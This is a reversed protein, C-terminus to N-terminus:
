ADRLAAAVDRQIDALTSEPLGAEQLLKKQKHHSQYQFNQQGTRSNNSSIMRGLLEPDAKMVALRLAVAEIASKSKLGSSVLAQAIDKTSVDKLRDLVHDPIREFFEKALTYRESGGTETWNDRIDWSDPSQGSTTEALAYGNDIAHVRLNEATKPGNPDIWSFGMNGYHRDQHGMLADLVLQRGVDAHRILDNNPISRLSQGNQAATFLGPVIHQYAGLGKDGEGTTITEPVIVGDGLLRDLAYAGAERNHMEGSPVGTKNRLQGHRYDRSGPQGPELHKAKFIFEEERDGDKM